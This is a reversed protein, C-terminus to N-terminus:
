RLGARALFKFVSLSDQTTLLKTSLSASPFAGSSGGMTTDNNDWTPNISGNVRFQIRSM